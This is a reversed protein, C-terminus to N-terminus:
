SLPFCFASGTVGYEVCNGNCKEACKQIGLKTNIDWPDENDYMIVDNFLNDDLFMLETTVNEKKTSENKDNNNKPKEESINKQTDVQTNVQANVTTFPEYNRSNTLYVLVILIIITIIVYYFM